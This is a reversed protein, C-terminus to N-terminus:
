ECVSDIIDIGPLSGPDLLIRAALCFDDDTVKETAGDMDAEVGDDICRQRAAAILAKGDSVTFSLSFEHETARNM